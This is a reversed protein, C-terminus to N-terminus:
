IEGNNLKIENKNAKDLQKFCQYPNQKRTTLDKNLHNSM